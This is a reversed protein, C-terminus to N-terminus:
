EKEYPSTDPFLYRLVPEVTNRFTENGSSLWAGRPFPDTRRTMKPDEVYFGEYNAFYAYLTRLHVADARAEKAWRLAARMTDKYIPMPVHLDYSRPDTYGRKELMTIAEVLGKAWPTKTQTFREALLKLSGRHMVPVGEVPEMAYFDDNWLLFPNSVESTNCAASIHARTNSYPSGNQTRRVHRVAEGNIWSPAGGFIWVNDHPVNQLSRLSYRLEPNEGDRCVYVIDM